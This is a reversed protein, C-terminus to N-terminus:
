RVKFAQVTFNAPSEPGDAVAFHIEVDLERSNDPSKRCYFRGEIRQNPALQLPERLLFAVQKWHTYQGRPGTTFSVANAEAQNVPEVASEYLNLAFDQIHVPHDPAFQSAKGGLPSFFTDFWTLFARVTTTEKETAEITFSSHFDLSAPTADHTNIDRVIAESTVVEERDVIEVLGENWYPTTMASMDFGYVKQWFEFRERWIRKGTIAAIVLRTQSPAMLGTPALYRDRAHLVSDLMSEYLLMYGMWESVIIDVKDVPLTIDEVKGQIVTIVSELGNNRINERTKSALGSAEIAYVHKAGARAALMSLIGTGAGVDLVIADKFVKPNSLIFRAYSVTRTTDKLMIEHIDNEAYSDFYHTDDDREKAKEKGKGKIDVSEDGELDRTVVHRLAAVEARLAELEKDAKAAAPSKAPQAISVQGEEDDSWDDDFDLQLLPDDAVVPVLLADDKLKEDDKALAAVQEPTAHSKRIWNILRMRGYLDLGLRESTAALDFGAAKAAALAEEPSAHVKDGFLDKTRRAEGLSSAWDSCRGDDSDTDSGSDSPPPAHASVQFSM